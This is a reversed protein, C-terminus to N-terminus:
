IVASREQNDAIWYTNQTEWLSALPNQPMELWLIHLHGGRVAESM